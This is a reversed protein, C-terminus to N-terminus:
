GIYGVLRRGHDNLVPPPLETVNLKGGWRTWPAKQFLSVKYPWHSTGRREEFRKIRLLRKEEPCKSTPMMCVYVVMRDHQHSRGIDPNKGMHVTRSDWLM